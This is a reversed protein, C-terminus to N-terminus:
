FYTKRKKEKNRGRMKFQVGDIEAQAKWAGWSNESDKPGFLKAPTLVAPWPVNIYHVPWMHVAVILDAARSADETRPPPGAPGESSRCRDAM